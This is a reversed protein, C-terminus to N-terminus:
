CYRTKINQTGPLFLEVFVKTTNNGTGMKFKRTNWRHVICTFYPVFEWVKGLVKDNRRLGSYPSYLALPRSGHGFM